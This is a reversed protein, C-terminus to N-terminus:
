PHTRASRSRSLTSGAGRWLEVLDHTPDRLWQLQLGDLLALVEIAFARPAAHWGSALDELAGLGERTREQFYEHAPHAPDLAEAGLITYLRVIEPQEANRAVLADLSAWAGAEDAATFRATIDQMDRDDRSRLVAVLLEERSSFHHEIGARTMDCDEALRSLTFANYGREAIQSTAADIILGRRESPALRTRTRAPAM